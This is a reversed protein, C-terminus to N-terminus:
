IGMPSKNIISDLNNWLISCTYKATRKGYQTTNIGSIFLDGKLAERTGYDHISALPIFSEKFPVIPAHFRCEYVFCLLNLSHIDRLKLLTRLKLLGKIQTLGFLGRSNTAYKKYNTGTYLQPIKFWHDTPETQPESRAKVKDM